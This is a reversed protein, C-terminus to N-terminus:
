SDTQPTPKPKNLLFYALTGVGAGAVLAGAALAIKSSNAHEVLEKGGIKELDEAKAYGWKMFGEVKQTATKLSEKTLKQVSPTDKLDLKEYAEIDSLRKKISSKLIDISDTSFGQDTFSDDVMKKARQELATNKDIAILKGAQLQAQEFANLEPPLIKAQKVQTIENRVQGLQQQLPLKDAEDAQLLDLKIQYLCGNLSAELELVSKHSELQSQLSAKQIPDTEAKILTAVDDFYADEKALVTLDKLMENTAESGKLCNVQDEKYIQLEEPKAFSEKIDKRDAASITPQNLKKAIEDLDDLYKDIKKEKLVELEKKATAELTSDGKVKALADAESM